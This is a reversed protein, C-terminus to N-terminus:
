DVQFGKAELKSRICKWLKARARYVQQEDNCGCDDSIKDAKFKDKFWSSIIRNLVCALSEPTTKGDVPNREWALKNDNLSKEVCAPIFVELLGCLITYEREALTPSYFTSAKEHQEISVFQGDNDTAVTDSLSIERKALVLNKRNKNRCQMEAIGTVWTSFTSEEKFTPFKQYATSITDQVVDSIDAENRKYLKGRVFRELRKIFVKDGGEAKVAKNWKDEWDSDM